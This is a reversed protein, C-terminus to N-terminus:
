GYISERRLGGERFIPFDNSYTHRPSQWLPAVPSNVLQTDVFLGGASDMLFGPELLAPHRASEGMPHIIAHFRTNIKEWMRDSHSKNDDVYSCSPQPMLQRPSSARMFVSSHRDTQHHFHLKLKNNMSSIEECMM